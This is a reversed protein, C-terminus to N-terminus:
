NVSSAVQLLVSASLGVGVFTAIYKLIERIKEASYRAEQEKKDIYAALQELKIYKQSKQSDDFQVLLLDIELRDIKQFFKPRNLHPFFAENVQEAEVFIVQGFQEKLRQVTESM